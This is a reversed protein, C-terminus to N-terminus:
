ISQKKTAENIRYESQGEKVEKKSYGTKKMKSRQIQDDTRQFQNHYEPSYVTSKQRMDLYYCIKSKNKHIIRILRQFM